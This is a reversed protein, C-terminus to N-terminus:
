KHFFTYGFEETILYKEKPSNVCIKDFDGCQWNNSVYVEYGNFVGVKYIDKYEFDNKYNIFLNSFSFNNYNKGTSFLFLLVIFSLLYNRKLISKFLNINLLVCGLALSPFLIIHGWGFRVEPAQMWFYLNIVFSGTIIFIFERKFIYNKIQRFIGLFILILLSIILISASIKLLSTNLFYDKFWPIFWDFSYITHDFDLYKERSRTDRSFGKTANVLLDIKDNGIFWKTNLCTNKVPYIFCSSLIFNRLMWFLMFISSFILPIFSKKLLSNNKIILYLPFLVLGIYTIKTVICIITSILLLNFYKKEETEYFKLFFYFSSIFFIMAMTDVEPNGLHNFIIGNKFPHIISFFILYAGVLFISIEGISNIKNTASYIQYFLVSFPLFNVLYITDFSAFKFKLLSLFIHWGSNLSYLWDLNSIGFVIKKDYAWRITQTHYVPSDINHGNEYNIFIFFFLILSFVFINIKIKKNFVLYLFSLLGIFIVPIFFIKLPYFFNLLISILILVFVGYFFDSNEIEIRKKKLYFIKKLFFSFGIIVFYLLLSLSFSIIM